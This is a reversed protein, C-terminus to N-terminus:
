LLFRRHLPWLLWAPRGGTQPTLWRPGNERRELEPLRRDLELEVLEAVLPRLADLLAEAAVLEARRRM